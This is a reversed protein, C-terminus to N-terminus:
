KQTESLPALDVGFVRPNEGVIAAAFFKPVYKINEEQFQRGYFTKRPLRKETELLTWFSVHENKTLAAVDSVHAKLNAEGSNFAAIALPYGIADAKGMFVKAVMSKFYKAAAGAALQPNCRDDPNKATAGKKVKLGYDQGTAATFQFLGMAGIPSQLCDCYETEIMPLYIGLYSPLELSKFENNLIGSIRSGRTLVTTLDNGFRCKDSKASSIRAAYQDIFQKIMKLGTENVKDGEIRGFHGLIKESQEAVFRIKEDDSMQAYTKVAPLESVSEPATQANINTKSTPQGLNGSNTAGTITSNGGCGAIVVISLCFAILKM